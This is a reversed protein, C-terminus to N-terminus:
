ARLTGSDEFAMARQLAAARLGAPIEVPGGLGAANIGAQAAEEVVGGILIALEPTRHFVLVGHNALLVAPVGPIVSARIGAVAQDSGRPGYETVPVGDALGFMALAEVWCGIPRRAVAYATAYPSHTHLVCGVDPHDEYMATHMAVVAAQIPPLEGERLTGDLGIRVVASAPHNRLSPGATFYMEDAGPVRVSVNGHGNASIAGSAVVRQAVDVLQDVLDADV